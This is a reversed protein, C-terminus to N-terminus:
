FTEMLFCMNNIFFLRQFLLRISQHMALAAPNNEGHETDSVQAVQLCDMINRASASEEQEVSGTGADTLLVFVLSDPVVATFLMHVQQYPSLCSLIIRLYCLM